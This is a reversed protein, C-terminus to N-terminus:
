KFLESKSINRSKAMETVHEIFYNVNKPDGNLKIRWKSLPARYSYSTTPILLLPIHSNLLIKLQLLFQHILLLRKLYILEYQLANAQSEDKFLIIDNKSDRKPIPLRKIRSQM